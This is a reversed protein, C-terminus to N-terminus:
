NNFDICDCMSRPPYFKGTNKRQPPIFSYKLLASSYFLQHPYKEATTFMLQTIPALPPTDFPTSSISQIFQLHSIRAPAYTDSRRRIRM